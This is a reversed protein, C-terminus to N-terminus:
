GGRDDGDRQRLVNEAIHALVTQPRPSPIQFNSRNAITDVTHPSKNLRGTEPKTCDPFFRSYVVRGCSGYTCDCVARIEFVMSWLCFLRATVSVRTVARSFQNM